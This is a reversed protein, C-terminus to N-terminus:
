MQIINIPLLIFTKLKHKLRRSHEQSGATSTTHRIHTKIDLHIYLSTFICSQIGCIDVFSHLYIHNERRRVMDSGKVSRGKGERREELREKTVANNTTQQNYLMM